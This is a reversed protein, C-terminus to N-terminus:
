QLVEEKKQSERMRQEIARQNAQQETVIEPEPRAYDPHQTDNPNRNKKSNFPLMNRIRQLFNPSTDEGPMEDDPYDIRKPPKVNQRIMESVKVTKLSSQPDYTTPTLVFLINSRIKQRSKSRFAFSLGPIDGLLPVKNDIEREEVQYYGSLVLSYGDPIRAISDVSTENVLPYRNAVGEIGTEAVEYGTVTAIRPQLLMEITNDPLVSPRLAVQLGVYTGREPDIQYSVQSTILTVGDSQTATSTIIPILEVISFSGAQNDKIIVTPGSEQVAQDKEILARIVASIELPNLVVGAPLAGSQYARAALGTPNELPSAPAPLFEGSTPSATGDYIADRVADGVTDALQGYGGVLPATNFIRDIPGYATVGVNIGDGLSNAWDVGIKSGANNLLRLIQVKVIVQKQPKDIKELLSAVTRVSHENDMVVLTRTMPEYNLAGRSSLAPRLLSDLSEREQPTHINLYKLKYTWETRPLMALQDETLAYITNGRAYITVGYQMGIDNFQELTGVEDYLQGNVTISALEPNSFYQYGIKRALVAFLDNLPM